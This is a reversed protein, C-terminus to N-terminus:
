SNHIQADTMAPMVRLGRIILLPDRTLRPIVADMLNM